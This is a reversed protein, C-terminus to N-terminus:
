LRAGCRPRITFPITGHTAYWMDTLGKLENMAARSSNVRGPALGHGPAICGCLEQPINAAHILILNRTQNDAMDEPLKAVTGGHIIYAKRGSLRTWQSLYYEGDPICSGTGPTNAIAPENDKWPREITWCLHRRSSGNAMYIQGQTYDPAYAFRELTLKM